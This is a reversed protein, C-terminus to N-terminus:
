VRVIFSATTKIRVKLRNANLQRGAAGSTNLSASAADLGSLDDLGCLEYKLLRGNNQNGSARM